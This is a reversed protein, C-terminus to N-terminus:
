KRGTELAMKRLLWLWPLIRQSIRLLFDLNTEQCITNRDAMRHNDFTNASYITTGESNVACFVFRLGESM